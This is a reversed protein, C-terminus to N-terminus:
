LFVFNLRAKILSYNKNELWQVPFTPRKLHRGCLEWRLKMCFVRGVIAHLWLQFQDRVYDIYGQWERFADM